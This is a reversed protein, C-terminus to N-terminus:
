SYIVVFISCLSSIPSCSLNQLHSPHFLSQSQPYLLMPNLTITPIAFSFFPLKF